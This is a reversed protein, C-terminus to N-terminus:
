RGRRVSFRYGKGTSPLCIGVVLHYDAPPLDEPLLIGYNDAV